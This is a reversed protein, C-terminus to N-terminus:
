RFQGGRPLGRLTGLAAELDPPLPAEIVMSEGTAPHSFGVRQAHLPTRGLLVEDAPALGLEGKLLQDAGAYAPDVALPYGAYKLHVRIQHGRGTQPRAELLAFGEFRELVKFVTKSAKGQEGKAAPRSKGRRAPVLAVDVTLEEIAPVGRVLALYRKSVRGAEFAQNLARHSAPDRAFLLVGSTGRDMRHVIFLKEKREASLLDVLSPEAEGERGRVVLSGAPKDVALLAKDEYLIRTM